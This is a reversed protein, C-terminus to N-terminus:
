FSGRKDGASKDFVLRNFMERMRSRVEPGYRAEIGDGGLNSTMHTIMGHTVWLEYRLLIVQQMVLCSNGFHRSDMEQGLDDFCWSVPQDNQFSQYTFRDIAAPGERAFDLSLKVCSYLSYHDSNDTYLRSMLDMIRTKGAGVPGGLFIGKHFSIQYDRAIDEDRLTWAILPIYVPLDEKYIRFRSGFLARGKNALAGLIENYDFRSM